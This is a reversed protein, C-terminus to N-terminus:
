AIYTTLNDTEGDVLKTATFRLRNCGCATFLHYGNKEDRFGSKADDRWADYNHKVAEESVNFGNEKFEAVVADVDLSGTYEEAGYFGEPYISYENM